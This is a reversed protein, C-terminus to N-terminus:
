TKSPCAKPKYTDFFKGVVNGEETGDPRSVIWDILAAEDVAHPQNMRYGAILRVPSAIRGSIKGEAIKEVRIFVQEHRGQRDYIRTTVFFTHRPPLGSKFRERASPYTARASAVYPAIAKDLASLQAKTSLPVPRDAPANPALQAIAPEALVLVSLLAIRQM